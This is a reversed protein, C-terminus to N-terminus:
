EDKLIGVETEIGNKRLIQIGKGAHSPNPDLSGVIVKKIESKLLADTCPPTKGFTCCPELTVFLTAGKADNGAKELAIIEAHPGGFEKHAGQSIVKQDKVLVAGVAPNPSAQGLVKEANKIALSMFKINEKDSMS